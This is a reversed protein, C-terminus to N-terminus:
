SIATRLRDPPETKESSARMASAIEGAVAAAAAKVPDSALHAYRATTAAQTHGLLKGIIPLGMGRSAAISAFAHRLDHLRVTLLGAPLTIQEAATADMCEHASPERELERTLRAVLGSVSADPDQAWLRVTARARIRRWPKELNVLAAGKKSGVIVYPNGDVRTLAALVALAPPPLHITKQGTKSDELRVEAREFDVKDWRLGLVEGLRAGTFALLKIAAVAYDSRNYSALAEGLAALENGSLMRERRNEKFKEIHRCPNSGQARMGWVEALNFMKSLLAVCRNAVGPGGRVRRRRQKGVKEDKATAGARVDRLLGDIDASTVSGVRLKGILPKIHNTINRKDAAISSLKKRPNAHETLYRDALEAVTVTAKRALKRDRSPDGGAAVEGLRIRALRRADDLKLVECRGLAMRRSAAGRRYQIVYSKAGSPKLRVGFGPIEQDWVIRDKDIPALAAVRKETLNQRQEAIAM